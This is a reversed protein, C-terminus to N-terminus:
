SARRRTMLRGIVRSLRRRGQSIRFARCLSMVGEGTKVEGTGTDCASLIVLETGELNLLSAELGTLLGDEVIANTNERARNAGALAIGCRVLPNEWDNKTTSARSRRWASAEPLDARGSKTHEFEQDPFYFGHTALDLVRPSQVSKLEAERAEAGLRLVGDGGLLKAM